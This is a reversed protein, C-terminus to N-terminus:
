FLDQVVADAVLLVVTGLAVLFVTLAICVTQKDREEQSRM